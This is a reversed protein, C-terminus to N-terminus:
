LGLSEMIRDQLAFMLKEQEAGLEHDHGLLHLMGHVFLFVTERLQSHGYSLAQEAARQRSIVIDGLYLPLGPPAPAADEGESLAFSLVDTAADKGRYERNLERIGADDTFLLSIEADQRIHHLLLAQRAGARLLRREEASPKDARNECQISLNARM